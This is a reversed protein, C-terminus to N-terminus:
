SMSEICPLILRVCEFLCTKYTKVTKNCVFMENYLLNGELIKGTHTM